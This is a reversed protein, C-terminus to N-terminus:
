RSRRARRASPETLAAVRLPPFKRRLDKARVQFLPLTEELGRLRHRGLSQLHIGSPMPNGVAERTKGSIVIQGGHGAACIRAVTHVAVGIYGVDTLKPRGSHIGIRVRVELNEPWGHRDLSRHIHIAAEVASGAEEFIAFFDDARADVPYGGSRTVAKRLIRRVDRLLDRYRNELRHLLATSGEIDAMMLTMFGRPLAAGDLGTAGHRRETELQKTIFGVPVIKYKKAANLLRKRARERAAASEFAVQEFRALANRVHAEDHIPLRRRGRSDVYAFATDPLKSRSTSDLRAM